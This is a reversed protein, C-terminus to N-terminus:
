VPRSNMTQTAHSLFSGAIAATGPCLGKAMICAHYSPPLPLHVGCAKKRAADAGATHVAAHPNNFQRRDMSKLSTSTQVM